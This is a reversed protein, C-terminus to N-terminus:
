RCPSRTTTRASVSSRTRWTARTTPPTWTSATGAARPRTASTSSPAAPCNAPIDWNVHQRRVRLGRGHRPREPVRGPHGASGVVFRLGPPFPRVQQLRPRREQLLHDAATPSSAPATSCPRCGTRRSTRRRAAPPRAPRSSRPRRPRPTRPAHQGHVHAQALRRGPRPLRDPRRAPQDPSCNAQFEHHTVTTDAGPLLRRCRSRAHYPPTTPAARASCRSSGCRTATAPAAPRSNSGCTAAPAPARQRTQNGGTGNTVTAVTTWTTGDPSM